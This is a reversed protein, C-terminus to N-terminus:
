MCIPAFDIEDKNYYKIIRSQIIKKNATTTNGYPDRGDIRYKGRRSVWNGNEDCQVDTILGTEKENGEVYDNYWDVMIKTTGKGEVYDSIRITEDVIDSPHTYGGESTIKSIHGDPSYKINRILNIPYSDGSGNTYSSRVSIKDIQGKHNREFSATLLGRDDDGADFYYAGSQSKVDVINGKKDFVFSASLLSRGRGYEDEVSEIYDLTHVFGKVEAMKLDPTEFCKYISDNKQELAKKEAEKQLHEKRQKQVETYYFAVCGILFVVVFALFCLIIEKKNEM